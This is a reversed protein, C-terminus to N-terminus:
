TTPSGGSGDAPERWALLDNWSMIPYEQSEIRAMLQDLGTLRRPSVIEGITSAVQEDPPGFRRTGQQYLKWRMVTSGEDRSVIRPEHRRDLTLYVCPAMRDLDAVVSLLKPDVRGQEPLACVLCTLSESAADEESAATRERLESILRPLGSAALGALTQSRPDGLPRDSPQHWARVVRYNFQSVVAGWPMRRVQEGTVSPDDAEPRVLVIIPEMPVRHPLCLLTTEILGVLAPDRSIALGVVAVWPEPSPIRLVKDVPLIHPFIGSEILKIPGTGPVSILKLFASPDMGVLKRLIADGENSENARRGPWPAGDARDFRSDEVM